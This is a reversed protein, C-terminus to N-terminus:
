YLAGLGGLSASACAACAVCAIMTLILLGLAIISLVIGTTAMGSPQEKKAMIGLILGVIACAIGIWGMVVTVSFLVCVLGVIGLVMSAIAKGNTKQQQQM